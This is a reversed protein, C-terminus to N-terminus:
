KILESLYDYMAVMLKRRGKFLQSKVTGETIGLEEAVESQSMGDIITLRLVQQQGPDILKLSEELKSRFDANSFIEDPISSGDERQVEFEDGSEGQFTKDLSTRRELRKKNSRYWSFAVNRAIKLLWNRFKDKEKLQHIDQSASIFVNQSVDEAYTRDLGLKLLVRIVDTNYKEFLKSFALEDKRECYASVLESDTSIIQPKEVKNLQEKM